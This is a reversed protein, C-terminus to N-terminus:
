EPRHEKTCQRCMHTSKVDTAKCIAIDCPSSHDIVQVMFLASSRPFRAFGRLARSVPETEASHRPFFM